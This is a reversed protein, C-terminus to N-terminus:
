IPCNKDNQLVEQQAQLRLCHAGAQYRTDHAAILVGDAYVGFSDNEHREVRLDVRGFRRDESIATIM